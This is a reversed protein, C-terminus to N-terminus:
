ILTEQLKKLSEMRGEFRLTEIEMKIKIVENLCNSFKKSKRGEALNRFALNIGQRTYGTIKEIEETSLGTEKRFEAFSTMKDRREM